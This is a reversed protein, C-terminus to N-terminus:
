RTPRRDTWASLMLGCSRQRRPAGAPKEVRAVVGFGLRRYWGLPWDDEDAGIILLRVGQDSLRSRAAELLATGHGHGRHGPFIDVEQLRAAPTPQQAPRFAAIAGVVAGADATALWLRLGLRVGRERTCRVMSRAAAEDLGFESEVAVRLDEYLAWREDSDCDLLALPPPGFPASADRALLAKGVAADQESLVACDPRVARETLLAVETLARM